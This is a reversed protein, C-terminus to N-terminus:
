IEGQNLNASATFTSKLAPYLASYITHHAELAAQDAGPTATLDERVAISCAEEISNFAGGGVAALLAAGYATGETTTTTRVTTNFCDACLQRWFSSMAGGGSIRVTQAEIGTEAILDLCEKLGHTVGEVVARMMHSRDHRTTLGIWCGRANPDPHPTREGSLYPLFYLGEAGTPTQAALEDLAKYGNIGQKEAADAIDPAITDRFWKVSGAASLMVGMLHWKGPVAHCFAHLSGDPTTKWTDSAAFVVGSTGLTTGIVSSDVLGMGIASAAQDGAGAVIPVGERIGTEKAASENVHAIVEPSEHADPWWSRPLDLANLIEDSWCRKGCNFVSTGSADSVDMGMVGSFRYRIYDKPLLVTHIRKFLEPENDRMWLLKPATFGPLLRNGTEQILKEKGITNEYQTCQPASRQDNWLIAPRLPFGHDDLAVLGHMQGTPGIADIRSPPIGAKATVGKIAEHTSRWWDEPNQESYGPQPTSPEHGGLATALVTGKEDILVAKTGSTGVDIGLFIAM